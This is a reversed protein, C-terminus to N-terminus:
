SEEGEGEEAAQMNISSEAVNTLNVDAQKEEELTQAFLEAVDNKGLTRAIQALGGYTAIEYHEVKQGAVILACDRTMTGKETDEIISYAEAIIGEIAECKKGQPKKGMIGFVEELRSIQGNTVDIHEQFTDKLEQSTAAKIMKPLAKLIAKEAYYIDKLSDLTFEELMTTDQEPTFKNKPAAKKPAAKAPAAKSPRGASVPAGLKAPAASKSAGKSSKTAKAM